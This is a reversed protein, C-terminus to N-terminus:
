SWARAVVLVNWTGDDAARDFDPMSGVQVLAFGAARLFRDFDEDFFFRVCHTEEWHRPTASKTEDLSFHITVRRRPVDLTPNSVRLLRGTSSESPKMRSTPPERLVAPGFWCDFLLLGDDRLHTRATRLAAIVDEDELQYGIVAFMMLAVDFKLDCRFKRLDGTAFSLLKPNASNVARERARAIM